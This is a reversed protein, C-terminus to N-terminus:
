FLDDTRFRDHFVTLKIELNVKELNILEDYEPNLIAEYRGNAGISVLYNPFGRIKKKFEDEDPIEEASWTYTSPKPLTFYEGERIIEGRDSMEKMTDLLGVAKEEGPRQLLLGKIRGHEKLRKIIINKNKSM